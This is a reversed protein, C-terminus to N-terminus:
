QERGGGVGLGGGWGGGFGKGQLTKPAGTCAWVRQPDASDVAMSDPLAGALASARAKAIPPM